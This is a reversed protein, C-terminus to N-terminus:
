ASAHMSRPAAHARGPSRRRRARGALPSSGCGGRSRSRCCASPRPRCHCAAPERRLPRLRHACADLAAARLHLPPPPPPPPSCPATDRAIRYPMFRAQAVMRTKAAPPAAKHLPAQRDICVAPALCPVAPSSSRIYNTYQEVEAPASGTTLCARLSCPAERHIARTRAHRKDNHLLQTSRESVTPALTSLALARRPVYARKRM